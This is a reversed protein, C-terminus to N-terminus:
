VIISDNNQDCFEHVNDVFPSTIFSPLVLRHGTEQQPTENGPRGRTNELGFKKEVLRNFESKGFGSIPDKEALMEKLDDLVLYNERIELKTKYLDLEHQVIEKACKNLNEQIEDVKLHVQVQKRGYIENERKYRQCKTELNVILDEEKQLLDKLDNMKVIIERRITDFQLSTRKFDPNDVTLTPTIKRGEDEQGLSSIVAPTNFQNNLSHRKLDEFNRQVRKKRKPTELLVETLEVSSCIPQMETMQSKSRKHLDFHVGSDLDDNNEIVLFLEDDEDEDMEAKGAKKKKSMGGIDKDLKPEGESDTLIPHDMYFMEDESTLASSLTGPMLLPDLDMECKSMLNASEIFHEMLIKKGKKSQRIKQCLEEIRQVEAQGDKLQSLHTKITEGQKLIKRMMKNIMTM